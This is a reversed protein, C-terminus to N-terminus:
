LNRYQQAEYYVERLEDAVEQREKWYDTDDTSPVTVKTLTLEERQRGDIAEYIKEVRNERLSERFIDNGMHSMARTILKRIIM